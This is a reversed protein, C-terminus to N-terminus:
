LLFKLLFQGILSVFMYLSNLSHLNTEYKKDLKRPISTSKNQLRFLDSYFVMVEILIGWCIIRSTFFWLAVRDFFNFDIVGERFDTVGAMAVESKISVSSVSEVYCLACIEDKSEIDHAGLEYHFTSYRGKYTAEESTSSNTSSNTDM